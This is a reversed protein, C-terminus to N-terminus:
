VIARTSRTVRARRAIHLSGGFRDENTKRREASADDRLVRRAVADANTAFVRLRALHCRPAPRDRM